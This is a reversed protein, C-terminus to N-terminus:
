IGMVELSYTGWGSTFRTPLVFGSCIQNRREGTKLQLQLHHCATWRPKSVIIKASSISGNSITKLHGDGGPLVYGLRFHIKHAVRLWQLESLFARVDHAPTTPM